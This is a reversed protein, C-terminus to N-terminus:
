KWWWPINKKAYGLGLFINRKEEKSADFQDIHQIVKEMASKTTNGDKDKDSKATGKFDWADLYYKMDVGSNKIYADYNEKQTDSMNAEITQLGSAGQDLLWYDSVEAEKPIMDKLYSYLGNALATKQSKSLNQKDIYDLAAIRREANTKGNAYAYAYTDLWDQVSVGGKEAIDRYATQMTQPMMTIAIADDLKNKELLDAMGDYKNEYVKKNGVISEMTKLMIADAVEAPTKGKLDEVWSDPEFDANIDSTAVQKAYDEAFSHAKIEEQPTLNDYLSNGILASRTEYEKKGYTSQYQRQQEQDLPVDEGDVTIKDPAKRSPYVSPKGTLESLDTIKDLLEDTKYTTIQGPLINTNLFNLTGGENKMDRGFSDQKIPLSDRDFVARFQDAAQEWAGEKSYLDRQYPDLGQAIGKWANPILSGAENAALTNVADLLKEGSREKKSYTYADSVDRFKEFMPLDLIAALSGAFTDNAITKATLQGEEKMDEALLAGITLHANFPELFAISVLTDGDQWDASGGNQSRLFASVNFQTGSQGQMKEFAAKDKNEDADGPNVVRIFGKLALGAAIAILASGTINRGLNQVAQAQEAATLKGNKANKLVSALRVASEALGAPSYDIARDALNAPVQAFPLAIDGLGVDGAHAKNLVNRAGISIDSLLTKDQFTRYRAEQEGGSRLSDDRIKGQEYLKDLGRQIESSTAGKAMEDTVYLGYGIASEWTSLLKSVVNGSMKFTRQSGSEYKSSRDRANVDLSTELMAMALGDMMGKRKAKSLYSYDMAVSRTGTIKSLLMDLPVSIDRSISDAIDFVGNGVLNRMITSAKSLMGNRRITMAMKGASVKKQDAAINEISAAAFNKLFEYFRATEASGSNGDQSIETEAYAAIRNLAWDIQGGLKKGWHRKTKRTVATDKIISVLGSVSKDAVAGDFRDAYDSTTELVDNVDTGKKSNELLESVRQMIGDGTKRTYKAWAQLAQGSTVGHQKVVSSWERYQSWDGSEKAKARLGGLILMGMDVEENSWTAARRLSEMEGPLDQEIRMRANNLSERETVADYDGKVRQDEPVGWRAENKGITNEVTQSQKVDHKFDSTKAGLDGVPDGTGPFLTELIADDIVSSSKQKPTYGDIKSKADIYEQNPGVEIGGLTKHGNTLIDDVLLELRKANANNEKGSDEMLDSWAKDIDAWSMNYDDKLRAIEPTTKRKQGTWVHNNGTGQTPDVGLYTRKGHVSNAIDDGLIQLGERIYPQLEPNNFSFSNVRRDGVSVYDRRDIHDDASLPRMPAGSGNFKIKGTKELNDLFESFSRANEESDSVSRAFELFDDSTPKGNHKDLFNNWKTNFESEAQSITGDTGATADLRGSGTEPSAAITKPAVTEKQEIPQVPDNQIGQATKNQEFLSDISRDLSSKEQTPKLTEEVAFDLASKKAKSRNMVTDALVQGGGMIGGVATGMAFEQGMRYPNLVANEDTMSFYPRNKTGAAKNVMNSIVGQVVEEKGEDLASTLWKLAKKGSSLDAGSIEGPLTEIGGGVEVMANATTSLLAAAMADVDSAGAQKAEDYSNGLTQAFSVQFMPSSVMKNWASLITGSLGTAQPALQSGIAGGASAGGTMMALAANPIAGVVGSGVEAAIQAAKNGQTDNQINRNMNEVGRQMWDVAQGTADTIPKFLQGTFTEEPDVGRIAGAANPIANAAFDATKLLGLDFQGAGRAITDAVTQVTSRPNIHLESDSGFGGAGEKRFSGRKGSSDIAEREQELRDIENRLRQREQLFNPDPKVAEFQQKKQKLLRDYYATTDKYSEGILDETNVRNEWGEGIKVENQGLDIRELNKKRTPLPSAASRQTIAPVTDVTQGTNVRSRAQSFINDNQTSSANTGSSVRRRAEDFMNTPM